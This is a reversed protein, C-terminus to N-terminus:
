KSSISMTFPIAMSKTNHCGQMPKVFFCQYTNDHQQHYDAIHKWAVHQATDEQIRFHYRIGGKEKDTIQQSIHIPVQQLAIPVKAYHCSQKGHETAQQHLGNMYRKYPVIHRRKYTAPKDPSQRELQQLHLSYSMGEAKATLIGETEVPEVAKGQHRCSHYNYLQQM